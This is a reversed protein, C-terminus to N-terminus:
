ELICVQIITECMCFHVVRCGEERGFHWPCKRNLVGWYWCVDHWWVGRVRQAGYVTWVRQEEQQGAAPEIAWTPAGNPPLWTSLLLGVDQESRRILVLSSQCIQWIGEGTLDEVGSSQGSTQHICKHETLALGGRKQTVQDKFPLLFWASIHYLSPSGALFTVADLGCWERLM